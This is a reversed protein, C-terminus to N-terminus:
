GVSVGTLRDALYRQFQWLPYELPSLPGNGAHAVHTMRQVAANVAVDETQIADLVAVIQDVVAERDPQAAAAPPVLVNIDVRHQEPGTPFWRFWSIFDPSMAFFFMPFVGVILTSARQEAGLGPAAEAFFLPHLPLDGDFGAAFAPDIHMFAGFWEHSAALTADITHHPYVPELSDRHVGLHHYCESANEIVVKWSAPQQGWDITRALTWDSLDVSGLLTEAGALRPALPPADRDLNVFVFGQWVTLPYEVLRTADRDFVESGAMDPAGICSGDPRFAWSHYPCVFRSSAGSVPLHAGIDMSRHPCVRSLARRTGAEDATLVLPEGVLDVLLHGGAPIEDVRAVCMWERRFIREVELAYLGPDHYASGPLSRARAMPEAAHDTLAHLLEATDMGAVIVITQM